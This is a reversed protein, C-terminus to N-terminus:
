GLYSLLIVKEGQQSGASRGQQSLRQAVACLALFHSRWLMLVSKATPWSSTKGQDKIWNVSPSMRHGWKRFYFLSGLPKGSRPETCVGGKIAGKWEESALWLSPFLVKGNWPPHLEKPILESHSYRYRRPFSFLLFSWNWDESGCGLVGENFVIRMLPFISLFFILPEAVHVPCKSLLCKLITAKIASNHALRQSPPM